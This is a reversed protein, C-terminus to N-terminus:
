ITCLPISDEMTSDESNGKLKLLQISTSGYGSADYKFLSVAMKYTKKKSIKMSAQATGNVFFSINRNFIVMEVIDGKSYPNGCAEGSRKSKNSHSYIKGSSEYGM